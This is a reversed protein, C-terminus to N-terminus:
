ASLSEGGTEGDWRAHRHRSSRLNETVGHRRLGASKAEHCGTKKAYGTSDTTAKDSLRVGCEYCNEVLHAAVERGVKDHMLMRKEM